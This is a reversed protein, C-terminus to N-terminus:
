IVNGNSNPPHAIGSLAVVAVCVTVQFEEPKRTIRLPLYLTTIISM